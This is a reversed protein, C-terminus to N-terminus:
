AGCCAGYYARGPCAKNLCAGDSCAGDACARDACAGDWKLASVDGRVGVAGLCGACCALDTFSMRIGSAAGGIGSAIGVAASCTTRIAAGSAVRIAARAVGCYSYCSCCSCIYVGGSGATVLTSCPGLCPGLYLLSTAM